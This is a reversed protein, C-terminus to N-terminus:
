KEGAGQPAGADPAGTLLGRDAASSGPAGLGGSSPMGSISDGPQDPSGGALDAAAPAPLSLEPWPEDAHSSAGVLVLEGTPGTGYHVRLEDYQAPEIMFNRPLQVPGAANLSHFRSESRYGLEARVLRGALDHRFFWRGDEGYLQQSALVVGDGDQLQLELQRQKFGADGLASRAQELQAPPIEWSVFVYQPDVVLLELLALGYHQPLAARAPEPPVSVGLSLRREGPSTGWERPEPETAPGLQDGM